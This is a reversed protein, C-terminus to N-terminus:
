DTPRTNWTSSPTFTSLRKSRTHALAAKWTPASLDNTPTINGTKQYERPPHIAIKELWCINPSNVSIYPYKYGTELFWVAWAWRDGWLVRMSRRGILGLPTANEQPYGYEESIYAVNPVYSM